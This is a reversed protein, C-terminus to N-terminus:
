LVEGALKLIDEPWNRLLRCPLADTVLAYLGEAQRVLHLTSRRDGRFTMVPEVIEGTELHLRDPTEDPAAKRYLPM